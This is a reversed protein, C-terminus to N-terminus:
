AGSSSKHRKLVYDYLAVDYKNISRLRKSDDDSLEVFPTPDTDPDSEREHSNEDPHWGIVRDLEAQSSKSDLEELPVVLDFQDLVKIAADLHSANVGGPPLTMTASGGLMRVVYNDFYVFGHELSYEPGPLSRLPCASGRGHVAAAQELCPIVEQIPFRGRFNIQSAMRAISERVATAYVLHGFCHDGPELQREISGFTFNHSAYLSLRDSCTSTRHFDEQGNGPVYFDHLLESECWKSPWVVREGHVRAQRCITTGASKHIHFWLVPKRGALAPATLAPADADEGPQSSSTGRQSRTVAHRHLAQVVGSWAVILLAISRLM